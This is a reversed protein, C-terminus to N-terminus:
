TSCKLQSLAAYLKEGPCDTNGLDRHGFLAFKPCVFGDCVGTQLLQKVSSMAETSPMDNQFNGMFAVGLSDHNNGKTHAGVVGWGRGEYVTGDEGALFNYGIDDFGRDTMHGRQISVLRKMCESQDKCRPLDTHHIIVKQAPGKLTERSKPPVAGWQQRSVINVTQAMSRYVSANSKLLGHLRRILSGTDPPTTVPLVGEENRM